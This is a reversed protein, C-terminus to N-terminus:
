IDLFLPTILYMISKLEQTTPTCTFKEEKNEWTKGYHVSQKELLM